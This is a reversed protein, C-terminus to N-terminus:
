LNEYNHAQSALAHLQAIASEIDSNSFKRDQPWQAIAASITEMETMAAENSALDRIVKSDGRLFEELLPESM